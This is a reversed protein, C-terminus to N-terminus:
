GENLGSGGYKERYKGVERLVLMSVKSLASPEGKASNM